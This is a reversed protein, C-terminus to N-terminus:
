VEPDVWGGASLIVVYGAGNRNFSFTTMNSKKFKMTYVQNNQQVTLAGDNIRYNVMSDDATREAIGYCDKIDDKFSQLPDVSFHVEQMGNEKYVIDEIYYYRKFLHIYAYNYNSIDTNVLFVPEEISHNYVLKSEIKSRNVDDFTKGICNRESLNQLFVITHNGSVVPDYDPTSSGDFILVGSLLYEMIMDAEKGTCVVNELHVERFKTYGSFDGVDGTIQSPMGIFKEDDEPRALTPVEILLYPTQVGLYASIGDGSANNYEYQRHSTANNLATNVGGQLASASFGIGSVGALAGAVGGSGGALATLGGMAIMKGIYSLAEKRANAQATFDSKTFPIQILFAGAKEYHISEGKEAMVKIRAICSGTLADCIYSLKITKGMIDDTNLDITGVFPLVAKIKTYPDYDLYTEHCPYDVICEGCDIEFFQETIWNALVETDQGLFYVHDSNNGSNPIPIPSIYLGIFAQLPDEKYMKNDIQLDPNSMWRNLEELKTLGTTSDFWYLRNFGTNLANVTPLTENNIPEDEIINHGTGGGPGNPPGWIGSGNYNIVLWHSLAEMQQDTPSENNYDCLGTTRDVAVLSPRLYDHEETVERLLMIYLDQNSTVSYSYDQYVGGLEVDTFRLTFATSSTWKIDLPNMGSYMLTKWEGIVPYPYLNSIKSSSPFSYFASQSGGSVPDGDTSHELQTLDFDGGQGVIRAVSQFEYPPPSPSGIFALFDQWNDIVPVASSAIPRYNQVSSQGGSTLIPYNVFTNYQPSNNRFVGSSWLRDPTLNLLVFLWCGENNAGVYIASRYYTGAPITRGILGSGDFYIGESVENIIQLTTGGTTGITIYSGGENTIIEINNAM